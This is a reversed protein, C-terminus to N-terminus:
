LDRWFICDLKRVLKSKQKGNRKEVEKQAKEFMENLFENVVKVKEPDNKFQIIRLELSQNLDLQLDAM